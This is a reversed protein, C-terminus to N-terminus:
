GLMSLFVPCTAHASQKQLCCVNVTCSFFLAFWSECDSMYHVGCIVVRTGRKRANLFLSLAHQRPTLGGHRTSAHAHQRSCTVTVMVSLMHYSRQAACVSVVEVLIGFSARRSLLEHYTKDFTRLHLNKDNIHWCDQYVHHIKKVVKHSMKACIWAFVCM